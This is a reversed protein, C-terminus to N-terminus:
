EKVEFISFVEQVDYHEELAEMLGVIKNMIETNVEVFNKPIQAIEASKPEYGKEIMAKKVRDLERPDCTIEYIGDVVEMNEAGIDLVVGLMDDEKAVEQPVTLFGKKDFMWAVSNAGAMRGGKSDFIKRLESITRNKNDTIVKVLIAADGAGFGEYTADEFKV